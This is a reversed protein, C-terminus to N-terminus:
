LAQRAPCLYLQAEPVTIDLLVPHLMLIQPAKLATSVLLAYALLYMFALSIVILAQMVSGLCPRGWLATFVQM